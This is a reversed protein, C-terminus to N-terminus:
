NLVEILMYIIKAAEARVSNNKPQFMNNGSGELIGAQQLAKVAERAYISVDSNDAFEKYEKMQQLNVETAKVARYAMVAMDQRIIPDEPKFLSETVGTTIGLKQATAVYKYHWASEPVDIFNTKADSDIIGLAEILMKCFEARTVNRDPQFSEDNVGHVIHKSALVEIFDKAWNKQIDMFTKNYEYVSYVSLHNTRFSIRGTDLNVSGGIYEWTKLEYNYCYVGIKKSAINVKGKEMKVNSLPIGVILKNNLKEFYIGSESDSNDGDEKLMLYLDYLSSINIFETNKDSKEPIDLNYKKEDNKEIEKVVIVIRSNKIRETDKTDKDKDKLYKLIYEMDLTGAPIRLSAQGLKNENGARIYGIIIDIGNSSLEDISNVTLSINLDKNNEGTLIIIEKRKSLLSNAIHDFKNEKLIGGVKEYYKNVENIVASIIEDTIEVKLTTGEDTIIINNDKEALKSIDLLMLENLIENIALNLEENIEDQEKEPLNGVLNIISELFSIIEDSTIINISELVENLKEKIQEMTVDKKEDPKTPVTGTPTGPEPKPDPEPDTDPKSDADKKIEYSAMFAIKTIESGVYIKYIGEESTKPGEFDFTGDTASLEEGLYLLNNSPNLIKVTVRIKKGINGGTVKGKVSLRESSASYSPNITITGTGQGEAAFTFVPQVLISLAIIFTIMINCIDRLKKM